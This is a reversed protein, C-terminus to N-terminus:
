EVQLVIGQQWSAYYWACALDYSRIIMAVDDSVMHLLKCGLALHLIAIRAGYRGRVQVRRSALGARRM